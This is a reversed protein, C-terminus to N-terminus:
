FGPFIGRLTDPEVHATEVRAPHDEGLRGYVLRVFAEAPLRLEAGGPPLPGPAAPSLSVGDPGADLQFRREPDYTTVRVRLPESAPKGIMPAFGPLTDLILEVADEAVTAKGDRAVAVDWTHLAHEGLRMQALDGLGRQGGFFTLRWNERAAPDVAALRDLFAGDAAISDRTQDQPSKGNWRSWIEQYQDPGPADEGRLGADLLLGFIEAGSGLHSLVQAITWEDCYSPDTVEDATLPGAVAALRAHSSRLAPLVTELPDADATVM